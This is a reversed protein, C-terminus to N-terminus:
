VHVGHAACAARLREIEDAMAMLLEAADSTPDDGGSVRWGYVVLGGCEYLDGKDLADALRKSEKRFDMLLGDKIWRRMTWRSMRGEAEAELVDLVPQGSEPCAETIPIWQSM